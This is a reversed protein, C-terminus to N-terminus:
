DAKMAALKGWKHRLYRNWYMLLGSVTLVALSVGLATWLIKIPLGWLTGFHLPHMAWLVWDGATHNQGYHWITLVRADQTSLTVIDRHSFDGADRQDMLAYVVTGSLAPDSLSYLHGAPSARHAAELLASLPVRQSGHSIQESVTPSVMGSLPSVAAVVASVPRYWAFYVGSFAWWSVILLTWIGIASHADFNIRRWNSRFNIRLGRAWARIGAWWLFTGTISLLFLIAAGVGNVQMGYTSGLLLYVHLDYIWDV